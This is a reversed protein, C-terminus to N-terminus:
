ITAGPLANEIKEILLNKPTLGVLHDVLKGNKFFLITPIEMVGYESALGQEKEVDVSYFNVTSKYSKAVDNYISEVIQSAGNWERKFQVLSLRTGEMVKKKFDLKSVRKNM